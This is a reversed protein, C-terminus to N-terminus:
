TMKPSSMRNKPLFHRFIFQLWLFPLPILPKQLTVTLPNRRKTSMSAHAAETRFSPEKNPHFFSFAVANRNRNSLIPTRPITTVM